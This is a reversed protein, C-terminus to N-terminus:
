GKSPVDALASMVETQLTKLAQAKFVPKSTVEHVYFTEENINNKAWQMAGQQAATLENYIEVFDDTNLEGPSVSVVYM